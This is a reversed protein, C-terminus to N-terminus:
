AAKSICTDTYELNHSEQKEQHIANKLNSIDIIPSNLLEISINNIVKIQINNISNKNQFREYWAKYEGVYIPWELVPINGVSLWTSKGADAVIEYLGVKPFVSTVSIGYEKGQKVLIPNQVRRKVDDVFCLSESSFNDIFNSIIDIEEESFEKNSDYFFKPSIEVLHTDTLYEFEYRCRIEPYKIVLKDIIDIVFDTSNM